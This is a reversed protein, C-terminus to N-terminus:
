EASRAAAMKYRLNKELGGEKEWQQETDCLIANTRIVFLTGVEGHWGGDGAVQKSGDSSERLIHVDLDRCVSRWLTSDTDTERLGNM